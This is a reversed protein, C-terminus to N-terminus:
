NFKSYIKELEEVLKNIEQKTNYISLSVRATAPIKLYDHLVQTCHQGARIIIGQEGLIDALDHAHVGKINFAIVPM